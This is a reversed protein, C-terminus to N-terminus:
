DDRQEVAEVMAAGLQRQLGPVEAPALNAVLTGNDVTLPEDERLLALAVKGGDAVGIALRARDGHLDTISFFSVNRVEPTRRSVQPGGDVNIQLVVLLVGHPRVHTGGYSHRDPCVLRIPPYPCQSM